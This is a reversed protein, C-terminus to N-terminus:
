ILYCIIIFIGSFAILVSGIYSATGTSVRIDKPSQPDYYIFVTNGNKSVKAIRVPHSYKVICEKEGAKFRYTLFYKYFTRGRWFGSKKRQM